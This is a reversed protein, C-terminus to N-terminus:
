RGDFGCYEHFVNKIYEQYGPTDEGAQYFWSYILVMYYKVYEWNASGLSSYGAMFLEQEERTNLFRQGPRLILAWAIDFERNGIGALEFDLIASIHKNEWLINAYHFDGHCFCRNVEYPRNNTLYDYVYCLDNKQFFDREPAHFFRRDKVPQFAGKVGHLRALTQGYEYMYEASVHETNEGVITSLREGPKALTVVFHTKQDDHDIIQPALDCNLQTITCVENEIDAGRQRAVKIFAEVERGCYMGRVQFVDNGAHPYGIVEALSFQHFPLKYPDETDRWKEPHRM